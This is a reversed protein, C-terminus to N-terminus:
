ALPDEGGAIRFSEGFGVRWGDENAVGAVGAEAAARVQFFRPSLEGISPCGLLALVRDLEDRLIGLAHSAGAEGGAALGYLTARGLLVLDAGLAIAKAVYAGSRLGGDVMLTLRGRVLGDVGISRAREADDVALVGKLVLKRPWRERLRAIDAWDLASNIQAGMYQAGGVPSRRDEPLFEDLNGFSPLGSPLFVGFLWRLHILVDLKARFTLQAPRVYSRLDWVRKGLVPADVTVLLAECGADDARQILTDVATQDRIVYLQFWLRGAERAIADLRDSSVTSAIPGVPNL